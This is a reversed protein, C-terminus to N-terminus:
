GSDAQLAGPGHEASYGPLVRFVGSATVRSFGNLADGADLRYQTQV